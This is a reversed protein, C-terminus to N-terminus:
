FITVNKLPLFFLKKPTGIIKKVKIPMWTPWVHDPLLFFKLFELKQTDNKQCFIPLVLNELLTLFIPPYFNKWPAWLKTLNQAVSFLLPHKPILLGEAKRIDFLIKVKLSTLPRFIRNEAPPANIEAQVTVMMNQPWKLM